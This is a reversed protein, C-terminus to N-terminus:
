DNWDNGLPNGDAPCMANAFTGASVRPSVTRSAGDCLGILLAPGRFSHPVGSPNNICKTSQGAPLQDHDKPNIQYMITPAAAHLPSPADKVASAGFFGGSPTSADGTILTYVPDGKATRDCSSLRTSMLITNSTGDAIRALGVNSIIQTKPAKVKIVGGPKDCDGPGYTNYGLIRINGSFNLKGKQDVNYPDDVAVYTPVVVNDANDNKYVNDQEIYPLLHFWLTKDVNPYAGGSNLGDPMQRYTDHYNHVALLCQRLNNTTQSRSAAERVRQLAPILLAVLIAIIAIVILLEILGFARRKSM